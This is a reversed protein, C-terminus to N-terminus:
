RELICLFVYLFMHFSLFFPLSLLHVCLWIVRLKIRIRENVLSFHVLYGGLLLTVKTHTKPDQILIQMVRAIVEVNEDKYVFM